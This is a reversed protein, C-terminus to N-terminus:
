PSSRWCAEMAPGPMEGGSWPTPPRFTGPRWGRRRTPMCAWGSRPPSRRSRAPSIRADVPADHAPNGGVIVLTEVEGKKIAEVLQALSGAPPSAPPKHLEITKGLNGLLANIAFALAHVLPPQRRGAVVLSKGASARLDAAVERVWQKDFAVAPQAPGLVQRLAAQPSGPAPVVKESLMLERALARAYAAVQSSPLRLRHDAMGGTISFQSEVVYLRNM